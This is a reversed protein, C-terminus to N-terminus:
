RFFSSAIKEKGYSLTLSRYFTDLKIFDTLCIHCCFFFIFGYYFIL